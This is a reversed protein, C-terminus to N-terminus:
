YKNRNLNFEGDFQPKQNKGRGQNNNQNTVFAPHTGNLRKVHRYDMQQARSNWASGAINSEYVKYKNHGQNPPPIKNVSQAQKVYGKSDYLKLNSKNGMKSNKSIYMSNFDSSVRSAKKPHTDYASSPDSERQEQITNLDKKKPHFRFALPNPPNNQAPPRPPPHQKMKSFNSMPRQQNQPSPELNFTPIDTQGEERLSNGIDSREDSGKSFIESGGESKKLNQNGFSFGKKLQIQKDPTNNDFKSGSVLKLQNENVIPGKDFGSSDEISEWQDIKPDWLGGPKTYGIVDGGYETDEVPLSELFEKKSDYKPDNESKIEDPEVYSDM